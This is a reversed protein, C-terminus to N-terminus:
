ILLISAFMVNALMSLLFLVAFVDRRLAAKEHQNRWYRARFPEIDRRGTM